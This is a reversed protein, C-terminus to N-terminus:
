KIDIVIKEHNRPDKPDVWVAVVKGVEVLSLAHIPFTFTKEIQYTELGPM